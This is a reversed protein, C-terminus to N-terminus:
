FLQFLIKNQDQATPSIFQLLLNNGNNGSHEKSTM